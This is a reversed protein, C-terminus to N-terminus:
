RNADGANAAVAEDVNAAVDDSTSRAAADARARAANAMTRAVDRAAIAKTRAEARDGSATTRAAATAIAPPRATAAEIALVARDSAKAPPHQRQESAM